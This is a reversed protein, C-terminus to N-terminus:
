NDETQQEEQNNTDSEPQDEAVEEEAKVVDFMSEIKKAEKDDQVSIETWTEGSEKDEYSEIVSYNYPTSIPSEKEAKELALKPNKTESLAVRYTDAYKLRSEYLKANALENLKEFDKKNLKINSLSNKARKKAM